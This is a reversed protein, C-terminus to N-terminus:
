ATRPLALRQYSQHSRHNLIPLLSCLLISSGPPPLRATLRSLKRASFPVYSFAVEAARNVSPVFRAPLPEGMAELVPFLATESRMNYSHFIQSLVMTTFLITRAANLDWGSPDHWSYGLVYTRLSHVVRAGGATILLRRALWAM